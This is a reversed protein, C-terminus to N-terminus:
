VKEKFVVDMEEDQKRVQEYYGLKWLIGMGVINQQLEYASRIHSGALFVGM